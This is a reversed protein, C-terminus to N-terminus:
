WHLGVARGDHTFGTYYVFLNGRGLSVNGLFCTVCLLLHVHHKVDVSVLVRAVDRNM